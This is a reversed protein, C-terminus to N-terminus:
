RLVQGTRSGLRRKEVTKGAEKSIEKVTKRRTKKVQLVRLVRSLFAEREKMVTTLLGPRAEPSAALGGRWPGAPSCVACQLSCM